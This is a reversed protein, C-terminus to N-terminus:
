IEPSDINWPHRFISILCSNWVGRDSSISYSVHLFYNYPNWVGIYSAIFYLPTQLESVWIAPLLIYPHIFNLCGYLECYFKLTDSIWVGTYLECYLILTDSIWVATHSAISYLLTWLRIARLVICPHGFKLCGMALFLPWARANLAAVRINQM